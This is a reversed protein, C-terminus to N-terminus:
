RVYKLEGESISLRTGDMYEIDIGTLVLKKAEWNYWACDWCGGGSKGPKVPGTDRGNYNSKNRIDCYVMDGVANIPYGHWTLYKIVKSSTNVYYFYASVGSVCNPSSLYASKIRISHKLSEQRKIRAISDQKAQAVQQAKFVSDQRVKEVVAISDRKLTELQSERSAKYIDLFNKGLLMLVVVVVFFLIGWKISSSKDKKKTTELYESSGSDFSTTKEESKQKKIETDMERQRKEEKWKLFEEYEQKEEDTMNRTVKRNTLNTEFKCMEMSVVM